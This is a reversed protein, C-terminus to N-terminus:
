KVWRWGFPVFALIVAWVAEKFNMERRILLMGVWFNYLIFLVGHIWGGVQVFMPLGAWYKLPMAVGLLFLFSFGEILAVQHFSNKM